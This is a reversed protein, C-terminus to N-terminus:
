EPALEPGNYNQTSAPSAKLAPASATSAPSAKLASSAKFAATPASAPASAPAPAPAPTAEKASPSPATNSKPNLINKKQELLEKLRSNLNTMHSSNKNVRYMDDSISITLKLIKEDIEKLEKYKGSNTVGQKVYNFLNYFESNEIKINLNNLINEMINLNQKLENEEMKYIDIQAMSIGETLAQKINEPINFRELTSLQREKKFIEALDKIIIAGRRIDIQEGNIEKEIQEKLYESTINSYGSQKLRSISENIIENKTKLKTKPLATSTAPSAPAALAARAALEALAPAAPAALAARAALEALAAAKTSAPTNKRKEKARKLLIESLLDSLKKSVKNKQKSKANLAQFLRASKEKDHMGFFLSELRTKNNATMQIIDEKKISEIAKEIQDNTTAKELLKLLNPPEPQTSQNQKKTPAPTAEKAAPTAEKASPATSAQASAPRFFFELGEVTRFATKAMGNGYKSVFRKIKELASKKKKPVATPAAVAAETVPAQAPETAPAPAPAPAPVPTAGKATTATKSAQAAPVPKTKTGYTSTEIQKIAETENMGLSVLFQIDGLYNITQKLLNENLSHNKAFVGIKEKNKLLEIFEANKINGSEKIQELIKNASTNFSQKKSLTLKNKYKRNVAPNRTKRKRKNRAKIEITPTISKMIKELNEAEEPTPEKVTSAPASAPASAPSPAPAPKAAPVATPAAVAAETVPAQAPETAPAPSPTAGKATTATKSAQAAPAEPKLAAPSPPAPAPPAQPAEPKLATPASAPAAPVSVATALASAPAPPAPPAQPAEPKLATPAPASSTPAEETSVSTSKGNMIKNVSKVSEVSEEKRQINKSANLENLDQMAKIRSDLVALIQLKNERISEISNDAMMSVGKVVMKASTAFARVLKSVISRSMSDKQKTVMPNEPVQLANKVTPKPKFLKKFANITSKYGSKYIGMTAATHLPVISLSSVTVASATAATSGIGAAIGVGALAPAAISGALAGTAVEGAYIVTGGILYGLGKGFRSARMEELSQKEINERLKTFQQLEKNLAEPNNEFKQKVADSSNKYNTAFVNGYKEELKINEAGFRRKDYDAELDRIEKKLEKKSKDNISPNNLKERIENLNSKYTEYKEKAENGVKELTNIATLYSESQRQEFVRKIETEYIKFRAWARKESPTLTNTNKNTLINKGTFYKKWRMYAEAVSGLTNKTTTLIGKKHLESSSPLYKSNTTILEIALRNLNTNTAKNNKAKNNKVKNNKVNNLTLKESKDMLEKIKEATENGANGANTRNYLAGLIRLGRSSVGDGINKGEKNKNKSQNRLIEVLEKINDDSIKIDEPNIRKLEAELQEGSINKNKLIELLNRPPSQTNQTKTPNKKTANDMTASKAAAAASKAAAEAEAGERSMNANTKAKKQKEDAAAASEAAAADVMAEEDRKANLEAQKKAENVRKAAEIFAAAAAASEAAAAAVRAEEARMATLEAQKKAEEKKEAEKQEEAKKQEEAEKVRKADEVARMAEAAVRADEGRMAEEAKEAAQKAAAVTGNKKSKKGMLFTSFSPNKFVIKQQSENVQLKNGALGLAILRKQLTVPKNSTSTNIKQKLVELVSQSTLPQKKTNIGLNRLSISEKKPNPNSGLAKQRLGSQNEGLSRFILKKPMNQVVKQNTPEFGKVPKIGKLGGGKM